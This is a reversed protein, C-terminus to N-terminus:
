GSILVIVQGPGLERAFPQSLSVMEGQEPSVDRLPAGSGILTNLNDAQFRQPRLTNKNFVLLAEQHHSESGKWMMLVGPQQTRVIRTPNEGQFIAQNKKLANVQTIFDQLDFSAKEWDSPQTNVVNLRKRFGFEYGIPMMVGSSFLAALLYRQKSAALNGNTETALRETDHSEPFGISGALKRTLNYQKLLWDAELDWWKVSNFIYDFGAQATQKSEEPTCGLTEAVFVVDPYGDKVDEILRQWLRSPIQYAADCRFGRFGLDLLYGVIKRLYGYLGQPDTTKEHDFRVLDGWVVKKNGAEICFPHAIGGDKEHMLWAPHQKVLTSDVACHNIVLDVMMKLGHQEGCQIAAQLQQEPLRKDKPDVLRTDLSFYDAISYLSKSGGSQQVPNVFIWDFGMAAAREIHGQWATFPGALLPFLNYLIM